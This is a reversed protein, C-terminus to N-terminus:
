VDTFKDRVMKRLKQIARHLTVSTVNETKGLHQAIEKLRYGELYRLQILEADAESLKRMFEKLLGVDVEAITQKHLPLAIDVIKDEAAFSEPHHERHKYFGAVVARAITHVLGSVSDIKNNLAYTWFQLWIDAYADQADETRPLRIKLFRDIRPGHESVLKEFAKQDKFM